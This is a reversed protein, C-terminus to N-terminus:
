SWLDTTRTRAPSDIVVGDLVGYQNSSTIQPYYAWGLFAGATTSYINLDASGGRKLTRGRGTVRCARGGSGQGHPLPQM